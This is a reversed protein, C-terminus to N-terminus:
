DNSQKNVTMDTESDKWPLIKAGVLVTENTKRPLYLYLQQLTGQTLGFSNGEAGVIQNASFYYYKKDGGPTTLAFCLFNDSFDQAPFLVSFQYTRVKDQDDEIGDVEGGFYTPVYITSVSTEDIDHRYMKINSKPSSPTTQVLPAESDSSKSAAWEISFNTIANMVYAGELAGENFGSYSQNDYDAATGNYVPVYITVMLYTMLHFLRFRMRTFISSTAHYGGMIDSMMFNNKSYPDAVGGSQDKQVEWVPKQGVPFHFGFFKFANGSPGVGLVADWTFALRNGKVKFNYGDGWTAKDNQNYEYVYLYSPASESYDDFNPNNGQPMQSFYLLDGDQFESIIIPSSNDTDSGNDDIGDAMKMGQHVVYVFGDDVTESLLQDEDESGRCGCAAFLLILCSSLYLANKIM